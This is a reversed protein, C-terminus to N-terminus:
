RRPRLPRQLANRWFDLLDALTRELPIKASWGTHARLKRHSGYLSPTEGARLRQRDVIVQARVATRRQLIRLVDAIRTAHGSCVNYAEGSRGKRMLAEYARVVDRVDSFDRRVRINGVHIQRAQLGLGIAAMQRAFDSCVYAVTQGPGTHNFPRARIVDMGFRQGYYAALMDGSAKSLGYPNDPQLPHNETIPLQNRRPPAYAQCSGIVLVRAGPAVQRVAELLNFTGWFNSDHVERFDTLSATASAAAALHYVQQPRAKRVARQLQELSRVDCPIVAVGELRDKASLSTGFVRHGRACLLRCLHTGAFGTAGTVLIRM